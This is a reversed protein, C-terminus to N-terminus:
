PIMKTMTRLFVWIFLALWIVTLAAPPPALPITELEDGTPLTGKEVMWSILLNRFFEDPCQNVPLLLAGTLCVLFSLVVLLYEIGSLCKMYRM